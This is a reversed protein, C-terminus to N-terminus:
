EQGKFLSRTECLQVVRKIQQLLTRVREVGSGKLIACKFQLFVPGSNITFAYKYTRILM